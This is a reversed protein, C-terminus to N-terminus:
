EGEPNLKILTVRYLSEELAQLKELAKEAKNTSPDEYVYVEAMLGIPLRFFAAPEHQIDPSLQAYGQYEFSPMVRTVLRPNNKDAPSGKILDEFLIGPCTGYYLTGNFHSETDYPCMPHVHKPQRDEQYLVADVIHARDHVAYYNTKESILNFPLNPSVLQHFGLTAVEMIWDSPNPYGSGGIHDWLDWVQNGTSDLSPSGDENMQPRFQMGIDSLGYGEPLTQTTDILFNWIPIGYLGTEVALYTGGAQPSAGCGRAATLIPNRTGVKTQKM